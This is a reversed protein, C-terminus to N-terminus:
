LVELTIVQDPKDTWEPNRENRLSTIAELGAEFDAQSEWRSYGALAGSEVDRCAEFGILGPSGTTRDIVRRMFALMDETHEPTVHHIAIAVFM